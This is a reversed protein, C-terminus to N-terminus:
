KRKKQQKHKRYSISLAEGLLLLAILIVFVVGIGIFLLTFNRIGLNGSEYLKILLYSISGGAWAALVLRYADKINRGVNSFAEKYTDVIEM